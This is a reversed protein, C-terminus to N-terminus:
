PFNLICRGVSTRGSGSPRREPEPFTDVIDFGTNHMLAASGANEEHRDAYVTRIGMALLRQKVEEMLRTGVGRCVYNRHVTGEVIYAHDSEKEGEPEYQPFISGIRYSVFGVLQEGIWAAVAWEKGDRVKELHSAVGDRPLHNWRNTGHEFIFDLM